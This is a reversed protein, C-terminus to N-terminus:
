QSQTIGPFGLTTYTNHAVSVHWNSNEQIHVRYLVENHIEIWNNSESKIYNKSFTWIIMECIVITDHFIKM